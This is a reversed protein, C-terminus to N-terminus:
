AEDPVPARPSRDRLAALADDITAVGIIRMDTTLAAEAEDVLLGPVLMIDAHIREAAAVKGPIGSISGITGDLRITGTGAIIRGDALDEDALLDYVTLAIMMGASPGGIRTPGLDVVFPLDVDLLTDGAVTVGLGPRNMQATQGAQVQVQMPQGAREITLPITAGMEFTGTADALQQGTDVQVGDISVVVDGPELIGQSPGGRIVEAVVPATRVDVEFGALRAGMAAAVDFSLEFVRRQEEFYVDRDVGEPIVNEIRTLSRRDDLRARVVEALSPPKLNVTLLHLSGTVETISQGQIEILPAIPPADGPAIEVVPMPVAFGAGVITIASLAYLIRRM